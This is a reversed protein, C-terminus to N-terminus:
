LNKPSGQLEKMKFFRCYRSKIGSDPVKSPTSESSVTGIAHYQSRKVHRHGKQVKNKPQKELMVKEMNLWVKSFICIM